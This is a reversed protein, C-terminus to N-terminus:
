HYKSSSEAVNSFVPIIILESFHLFHSSYLGNFFVAEKFIIFKWFADSFECLSWHLDVNVLLDLVVGDEIYLVFLLKGTHRGGGSIGIVKSVYLLKIM